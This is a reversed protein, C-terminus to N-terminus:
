FVRSHEDGVVLRSESRQEPFPEFGFSAPNEDRFVASLGEVENSRIINVEEDGVNTHGDHVSDFKHPAEHLPLM